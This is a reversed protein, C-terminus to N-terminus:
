VNSDLVDQILPHSTSRSFGISLTLLPPDFHYPSAARQRFLWRLSPVSSTSSCPHLLLPSLPCHVPTVWIKRPICHNWAHKTSLTDSSCYLLSQCLWDNVERAKDELKRAALCTDIVLLRMMSVQIPSRSHLVCFTVRVVSSSDVKTRLRCKM